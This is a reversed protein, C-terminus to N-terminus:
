RPSHATRTSSASDRTPAQTTTASSRAMSTSGRPFPGRGSASGANPDDITRFHGDSSSAAPAAWASLPALMLGGAAFVLPVARRAASGGKRAGRVLGQVSAWTLYRTVKM